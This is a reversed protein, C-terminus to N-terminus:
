REHTSTEIREELFDTTKLTLGLYSSFRYGGQKM